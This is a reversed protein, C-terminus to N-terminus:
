EEEGIILRRGSRSGMVDRFRSRTEPSLLVFLDMDPDEGVVHPLDARIRQASRCASDPRKSAADPPLDLSDWEDADLESILGSLGIHSLGIGEVALKAAPKRWHLPWGQVKLKAVAVRLLLVKEPRTYTKM